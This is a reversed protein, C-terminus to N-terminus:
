VQQIFEAIRKIAMKAEPLIHATMQFDHFMGEWVDLTVSRNAMQLKEVMLLSDQLLLERTGVQFFSPPFYSLDGLIPSIYPHKLLNSDPAYCLRWKKIAKLSLLPDNPMKQQGSLNTHLVGTAPSLAIVAKPIPLKNNYCYHIAALALNGGASDGGIIINVYGQERLYQYAMIVDNLAAPHPHEPALRYNIALTPINAMKAINAILGRHTYISGLCFGGGHIFLLVHQKHGHEAIKNPTFWSAPMGNIFFNRKHVSKPMRQMRAALKMRWRQSSITASPNFIYYKYLQVIYRLMRAKFTLM